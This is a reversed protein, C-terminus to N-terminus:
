HQTQALEELGGCLGRTSNIKQNKLGQYCSAELFYGLTSIILGVLPKQNKIFNQWFKLTLFNLFIISM